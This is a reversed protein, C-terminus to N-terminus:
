VYGRVVLFGPGVAPDRADRGGKRAAEGRPTVFDGYTRGVRAVRTAADGVPARRSAGGDGHVREGVYRVGDRIAELQEQRAAEGAIEIALRAAKVNCVHVATVVEEAHERGLCQRARAYGVDHLRM